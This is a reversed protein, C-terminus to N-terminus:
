LLKILFVSAVFLRSLFVASPPIVSLFVTSLLYLACLVYYDEENVFSLSTM